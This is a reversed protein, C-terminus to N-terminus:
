RRRGRGGVGLLEARRPFRAAPRGTACRRGTSSLVANFSPWELPAACRVLTPAAVRPPAPKIRLHRAESEPLFCHTWAATAAATRQRLTGGSRPRRRQRWATHLEATCGHHAVATGRWQIRAAGRPGAEWVDRRSLQVRPRPWPQPDPAREALALRAGCVASGKGGDRGPPSWSSSLSRRGCRGQRGHFAGLCLRHAPPPDEADALTPRCCQRAPPQEPPQGVM